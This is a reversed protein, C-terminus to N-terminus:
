AHDQEKLQVPGLLWDSDQRGQEIRYKRLLYSFQPVATMFQQLQHRAIGVLRCDTAACFADLMAQAFPVCGLEFGSECTQGDCSGTGEVLLYWIDDRPELTQGAALALPEGVHALKELVTSVLARFQPLQRLLLRLDWRTLLKDRYGESHIFANFIEESFVCVT